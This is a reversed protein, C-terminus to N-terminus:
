AIRGHDDNHDGHPHELRGDVLFDIHDGHKVKEHGCGTAHVHMSSQMPKCRDPNKDSVAVPHPGEACDLLGDENLYDTHNEHSVKQHGCEPGHQHNTPM